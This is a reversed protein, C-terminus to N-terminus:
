ENQGAWDATDEDIVTTMTSSDTGSMIVEHTSGLDVLRMEIDTIYRTIAPIHLQAGFAFLNHAPTWLRAVPSRWVGDPSPHWDLENSIRARVEFDPTSQVTESLAAAADIIASAEEDIRFQDFDVLVKEKTRRAISRVAHVYLLFAASWRVIEAGSVDLIGKQVEGHKGLHLGVHLEWGKAANVTFQFIDDFYLLSLVDEGGWSSLDIDLKFTSHSGDLPAIIEFRMMGDFAIAVFRASCEGGYVEASVPGMDVSHSGDATKLKLRVHGRRPAPGISLAGPSRGGFITNLVEADPFRISANAIEIPAGHRQLDSFKREFESQTFDGSISMQVTIPEVADLLYSTRGNSYATQVRFRPDMQAIASQFAQHFRSVGEQMLTGGNGTAAMVLMKTADEERPQVKGLRQHAHQEAAAKWGLLEETSYRSDDSDVERGHIACLWIGNEYSRRQERTLSPDYRPGNPAAATIHAATGVGSLGGDKAPGRTPVRCDPRSCLLGAREALLRTTALTFDDRRQKKRSM